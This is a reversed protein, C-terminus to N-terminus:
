GRPLIRSGWIQALAKRQERGLHNVVMVFTEGPPRIERVIRDHLAKDGAALRSPTLVFLPARREVALVFLPRQPLDVVVRRTLWARRVDKMAELAKRLAEVAEESLGHDTLDSIRIHSREAEAAAMKREWAEAKGAHRRAEDARGHRGLFEEALRHAPAIAEPPGEFLPRLMELGDERGAALLIRGACFRSPGHEPHAEVVARYLPLADEAGSFREHLQAREFAEDASLATRGASEDLQLLRSRAKRTEEFHRRWGERVGARWTEDLSAALAARDPGFLATSAPQGVPGPLRPKEGLAELRERLCPHTDGHTTERALAAELVREAGGLDVASPFAAAMEAFPRRDPEPVHQAREFVAPWYREGLAQELLPLRVLASAMAPGGALRKGWADAAREQARAAVFSYADFFPAYWQLFRRLVGAGTHHQRQLQEMLRGWAARTRYIWGGLSGDAASLHGLEHALVGRTENPTIGDLLPLGLLLSNRPWGFVGLRPRQAVAANLDGTLLVDHVRPARLASRTEEVLRDLHPFRGREVPLGRPREFRVWLGRLIVVALALLPAGLKFLLAPQRVYMGVLVLLAVLTLTGFLVAILFAYGAVALLVVRRRYAAPDRRADAELRAILAEREADTV